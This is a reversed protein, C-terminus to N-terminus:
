SLVLKLLQLLDRFILAAAELGTLLLAYIFYGVKSSGDARCSTYNSAAMLLFATALIALM